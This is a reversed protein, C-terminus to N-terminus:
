LLLLSVPQTPFSSSAPHASSYVGTELFLIMLFLPRLPKTNLVVRSGMATQRVVGGVHCLHESQSAVPTQVAELSTHTNQLCSMISM